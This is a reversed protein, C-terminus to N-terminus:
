KKNILLVLVISLLADRLKVSHLCVSWKAVASHIFVAGNQAGLWMTPQISSMKKLIKMRREEWSLPKRRRQM